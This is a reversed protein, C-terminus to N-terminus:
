KIKCQKWTIKRPTWIIQKSIKFNRWGDGSCGWSMGLVDGLHYEFLGSMQFFRPHGSIGSFWSIRFFFCICPLFDPTGLFGPFVHYQFVPSIGSFWSIRRLRSMHVIRGCMRRRPRVSTYITVNRTIYILIKKTMHIWANTTMYMEVNTTMHTGVNTTMYLSLNLIM